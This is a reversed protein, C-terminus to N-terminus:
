GGLLELNQVHIFINYTQTKSSPKDRAVHYDVFGDMKWCNVYNSEENHTFLVVNHVYEMNEKHM